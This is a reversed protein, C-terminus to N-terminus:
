RSFNKIEDPGKLIGMHAHCISSLVGDLLIPGTCTRGWIWGGWAEYVLEGKERLKEGLWPAVIWYEYINKEM